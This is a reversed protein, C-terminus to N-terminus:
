NVSKLYNLRSKIENWTGEEQFLSDSLSVAYPSGIDKLLALTNLMLLKEVPDKSKKIENVIQIGSDSHEGLALYELARLRNLSVKDNKSIEAIKNVLEASSEEFSSCATLAWYRKWENDSDLAILLEEEAEDFSLLALDAVAVLESIEEKRESGFRVPDNLAHEALYSEPYFSLDPMSTIQDVLTERLENKVKAYGPDDALNNLEYPDEAVNYLAEAPKKEFFRAQEDTLQGKHYMERWEIYALMRYRYNNQLADINYPQYNRIYKYEGARVSRVLDYKEDFRDAYSFTLQDRKQKGPRTGKGLFSQGDMEEPVKVGALNLVTAGFDVFSVFDSVASGQKVKALKEYKEPVYVVLPVHLGTEYLYGKSGPLVGGHDGFYFVITEDMLGDEELRDLIEGVREDMKMIKDHYTAYTYRFLETDPHIPPVFVQEPDTRPTTNKMEEMDFHLSSEHTIGINQVHFFPQGDERNRWSAKNSSEDWVDESKIINYDEKANNTTYYGVERLYAPFMKLDGPMPVKHYKRHFQAGIRPAYCGSILTSRAVSCVPANSFAHSFVVGQDAMQEINPAPAGHEDFLRLFHKSNDESSIWVINPKELNDTPNCSTILGTGAILLGPMLTKM